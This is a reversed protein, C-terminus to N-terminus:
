FMFDDDNGDDDDDGGACCKDYAWLQSHVSFVSNEIFWSIRVLENM